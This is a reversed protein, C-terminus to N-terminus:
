QVRLSNTLYIEIYNLKFIIQNVKTCTSLAMVDVGIHRSRDNKYM